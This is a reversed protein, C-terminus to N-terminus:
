GDKKDEKAPATPTEVTVGPPAEYDLLLRGEKIEWKVSIPGAPHPYVGTAWSLTGPHPEVRVLNVNGPEPFSVGLVEESLYHTPSSSWAHCQSGGPFTEWCTWAGEDLMMGWCDRIFREAEAVRGYRYLVGLSYFSFYPMVKCGRRSPRAGGFNDLLAETVYDLAGAVQDESAIDYLLPLTNSAVSPGTGPVDCRRRDTFVAREPDWFERRIAAALRDASARYGGAAGTEGLLDMIRAADNFARQYFCNLACNIGGTDMVQRDLYPGLESGDLLDTGEAALSAIGDMLGELHPQMERLFGDDGTRAYYHWLTQAMIASYDPHRGPPLGHAGPSVLGREDQSQFFLGICRRMLAGDGFAALNTFFQVFFDGAYLGRERRPCDLYADEMCARQTARGLRWVEDLLLDSCEFRGVDRVPYNARTMSLGHLDFADLDGSVLVELYRFGRPHFTQWRQRGARAVCREAMRVNHSGHDAPLGDRLKESYALDVVTGEGATFDVVPRGLMEGGFDYLLVLTHPGVRGAYDAGRVQPEESGDDLPEYVKLCREVYPSNAGRERPWPRWPTLEEPLEDPSGLPLRLGAPDRNWRGRWPGALLFTNPSDAVPEASVTVGAARPFALYLEWSGYHVQEAVQLTNWGERLHVDLDERLNVDRRRRAELPEGNLWYRGWWAGMTVDQDRPSHLYTFAMGTLERQRSVGPPATLIFSTREEDGPYRALWAGLRERPVAQGEDLLPISRPRLPGWHGQDAVEVAGPWDSDDFEAGGWDPPLLRADLREGPNLAFSLLATEQQYAPCDLAKWSPGTALDVVAGDEDEVRGWAVLGGRSPESHFSGCGYSNVALAVVNRGRRLLPRIDHTDYEPWKVFFRAPGHGIVEGNVVLRYRTDAFVNLEGARPTGKLEFGRRFLAYRNYGEGAPDTWVYAPPTAEM